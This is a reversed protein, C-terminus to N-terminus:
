SHSPALSKTTATTNEMRWAKDSSVTQDRIM